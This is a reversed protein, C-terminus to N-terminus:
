PAATRRLAFATWLAAGLDVAGLLVLPRPALGLVVLTTFAVFVAARIFVTWRFFVTLGTRAALVYYSALALVLVGVIRLWTEDAPPFGLPALATNPAVVLGLGVLALYLGFVFVSQAAPHM